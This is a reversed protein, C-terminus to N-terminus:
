HKYSQTVCVNVCFPTDLCASPTQVIGGGPSYDLTAGIKETEERGKEYKDRERTEPVRRCLNPSVETPDAMTGQRVVPM